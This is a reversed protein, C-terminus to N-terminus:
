NLSPDDTSRGFDFAGMPDAGSARRIVKTWLDEDSTGFVDTSRAETTLWSGTALEAELQGAGWGSYGAYFRVFQREVAVLEEIREASMTCYVDAVIRIESLAPETHLAVLPGAVPGGMHVEQSCACAAGRLQQWIEDLLRGTSRNLIVGLAGDQDHQIMLVVTNTFNPDSLHAPAILLQGKLSDVAPV